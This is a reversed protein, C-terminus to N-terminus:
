YFRASIGLEGALDNMRATFGEEIGAVHEALACVADNASCIVAAKYLEELPYSAGADLFVSTGGKKAAASSVSVTDNASVEGEAAARGIVLLSMLRVLGACPMAQSSNYEEIVKGTAAEVVIYAKASSPTERAAVASVPLLMFCIFLALSRLLLGKRM